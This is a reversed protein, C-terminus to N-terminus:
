LIPGYFLSRSIVIVGSSRVQYSKKYLEVWFLFGLNQHVCHLTRNLNLFSQYPIGVLSISLYELLITWKKFIALNIMFKKEAIQNFLGVFSIQKFSFELNQHCSQCFLFLFANKQFEWDSKLMVSYWPLEWTM